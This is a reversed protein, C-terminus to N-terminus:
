ILASSLFYGKRDVLLAALEVESNDPFGTHESERDDLRAARPDERLLASQLIGL